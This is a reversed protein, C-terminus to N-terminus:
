NEAQDSSESLESTSYILVYANLVYSGFLILGVVASWLFGSHESNISIIINILFMVVAAFANFKIARIRNGSLKNRIVMQFLYHPYAFLFVIVVTSFLYGALYAAQRSQDLGNLTSFILILGVFLLHLISIVKAVTVRANKPMQIDNTSSKM